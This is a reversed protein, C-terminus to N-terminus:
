LRMLHTLSVQAVTVTNQLQTVSPGKDPEMFFIAGDNVSLGHDLSWGSFAVGISSLTTGTPLSGGQLQITLYSDWQAEPKFQWFASNTPGANAGFPAAVQYAPPFDMAAHEDGYITYINRVRSSDFEVDVTYTTFSSTGQDTPLSHTGLSTLSVTGASNFPVSQGDILVLSASCVIAVLVAGLGYM